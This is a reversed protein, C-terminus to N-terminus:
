DVYYGERAQAILGKQNVSVKIKRYGSSTSGPTYGLNYQNRLEDEIQEYIQDLSQKESVEFYGGGVERSLRHLVKGGNTGGLQVSVGGGLGGFGGRRVRVPGASTFLISFILTDSRQAAEIARNLSVKSGQDVGDSLLILAKRGTQKRM